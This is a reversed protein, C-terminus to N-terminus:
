PCKTFTKGTKTHQVLVFRAVGIVPAPVQPLRSRPRSEHARRRWGPVPGVTSSFSFCFWRLFLAFTSFHFFIFLLFLSLWLSRSTFSSSFFLESFILLTYNFRIRHVTKKKFFTSRGPSRVRSRKIENIKEVKGSLWLPEGNPSSNNWFFVYGPEPWLTTKIYSMLITQNLVTHV